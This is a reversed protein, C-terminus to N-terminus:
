RNGIGQGRAGESMVPARYDPLCKRSNFALWVIENAHGVDDYRACGLRASRRNDSGMTAFDGSRADTMTTSM